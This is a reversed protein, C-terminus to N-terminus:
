CEVPVEEGKADDYPQEEKALEGILLNVQDAIFRHADELVVLRDKMDEFLLLFAAREDALKDEIKSLCQKDQKLPCKFLVTQRPM